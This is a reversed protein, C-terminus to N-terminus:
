VQQSMGGVRDRGHEKAAYLHHDARRMLDDLEEGRRMEAVGFTATVLLGDPQEAAIATRCREALRGAAEIGTDPAVILFEEGGWRAVLDVERVTRRLVDAVVELVGDGVGHGHEDNIAKFHDLDVLIISLPREYRNAATREQLLREQGAWRNALGTMPDTTARENLVEARALARHLQERMGSLAATLALLAALFGHVRALYYVADNPMTGTLAVERWVATTVLLGSILLVGTGAFVGARRDLMVFSGVVLAGVSWYHAGALILLHEDLSGAFHLHWSLRGLIVFSLIGFMTLELPWLPLRRQRLLITFGILVLMLVPYGREVIVDDPERTIWSLVTVLAAFLSAVQYVVRKRWELRLQEARAADSTVDRM